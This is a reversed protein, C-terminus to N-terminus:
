SGGSLTLGEPLQKELLYSRLRKFNNPVNGTLKGNSTVSYNQPTVLDLLADHPDSAINKPYWFSNAGLDLKQDSIIAGSTALGFHEVLYEFHLLHPGSALRYFNLFPPRFDFAAQVKNETVRLRKFNGECRFVVTDSGNSTFYLNAFVEATRKDPFLEAYADVFDLDFVKEPPVAGLMSIALFLFAAFVAFNKRKMHGKM